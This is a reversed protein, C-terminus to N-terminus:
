RGSMQRSVMYDRAATSSFVDPRVHHGATKVAITNALSVPSRLFPTNLQERNGICGAVCFMKQKHTPTNECVLCRKNTSPYLAFLLREREWHRTSLPNRKDLKATNKDRLIM